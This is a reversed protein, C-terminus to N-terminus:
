RASFHAGNDLFPTHQQGPIAQADPRLPPEAVLNIQLEEIAPEAAEIKSITEWVM